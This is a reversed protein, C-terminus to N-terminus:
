AFRGPEAGWAAWGDRPERSFLEVKAGHCLEEVLRYFEEPKRSHERLPAVLLTTQNTLTVVPRGRVCMLCHETKGRLWDGTGMRDKAWTLVTKVTFGWAEAVDYADLLFANTTWLWLVANPAMMSEVDLAAIDETPMTPYPCRGRHTLDDARNDYRWPPDAVLVHYPGEPMPVPQADLEAAMERVAERKAEARALRRQMVRKEEQKQRLDEIGEATLPLTKPPPSSAKQTAPYSKGDAGRRVTDGNYGEERRLKLVFPQSVACKAAIVPDSWQRWEEDELLRLVARRKDANTRRLGHSSNAGVSYLVADRQTGQRIDVEIGEDENAAAAALRHFGDALWYAEGDHYVIVPPFVAGGQLALRYEAVTPWDIQARPQTGGDTRIDALPLTTDHPMM